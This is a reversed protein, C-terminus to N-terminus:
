APASASGCATGIAASCTAATAETGSPAVNAAGVSTAYVAAVADAVADPVRWLQWGEGGGTGSIARTWAYGVVIALREVKRM